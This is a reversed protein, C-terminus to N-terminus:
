KQSSGSFNEGGNNLYEIESATSARGLVENRHPFRGFKEIVVRHRNAFSVFEVAVPRINEDCDDVLEEYKQVAYDQLKLDEAHEFPLYLFIREIPQLEKEMGSNIVYNALTVSKPDAEFSKPSNRYLNRSFQDLLIIMSLTGQATKSLEAEYKGEEFLADRDRKFNERIYEDTEKQGGFWHKFSVSSIPQGQQYGQFWFSLVRKQLALAASM